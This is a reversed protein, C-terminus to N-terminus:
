VLVCARVSVCVCVCARVCLCLRMCVHLCVCVFGCIRNMNTTGNCTAAQSRSGPLWTQLVCQTHTHTHTYTHAHTHTNAHTHAHTCTHDFISMDTDASVRDAACVLCRSYTHAHTHAHLLAHTHTHERALAKTDTCRPEGKVETSGTDACRPNQSCWYDKPRFPETNNGEKWTATGGEM